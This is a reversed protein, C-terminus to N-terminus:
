AQNDVLLVSTMMSRHYGGIAVSRWKALVILAATGNGTLRIL